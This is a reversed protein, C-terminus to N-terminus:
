RNKTKLREFCLSSRGFVQLALFKKIFYNKVLDLKKIDLSELNNLSNKKM